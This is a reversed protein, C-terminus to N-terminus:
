LEGGGGGGFHARVTELAAKEGDVISKMCREAYDSPEKSGGGPYKKLEKDVYESVLKSKDEASHAYVGAKIELFTVLKEVEKETKSGGICFEPTYSRFGASILKEKLTEMNEAGPDGGSVGASILSCDYNNEPLVFGHYMFYVHNPQGYNEYVQEGAGFDWPAKTVANVGADDVDTKHVTSGPPGDKCNILDLLPVLNRVGNWWISRSDLITTAWMFNDKNWADGFALKVAPDTSISEFTKESRERNEGVKKLIPSGLLHDLKEESFFFPNNETYDKITPLLTLYPWWFSKDKQVFREHMLFFLLTHFDDKQEKGRALLDNVADSVTYANASSMVADLPVSIYVDGQKIATTSRTGVRMGDGAVYAELSNVPFKLQEIFANFNAVKSELPEEDDSAAAAAASAEAAAANDKVFDALVSKAALRYRVALEGRDTLGGKDLLSQDQEITTISTSAAAATKASAVLLAGVAASNGSYRICSPGRTERDLVNAECAKLKAARGEDGLAAVAYYAYQRTNPPLSAAPSICATPCSLHANRLTADQDVINLGKLVALVAPSTVVPNPVNACNFPNVFPVFGHAEIYISNPNDGYDEFVQENAPVTRDSKVTMDGDASLIHYDLFSRGGNAVRNMANPSYNAMDALPTMHKTGQMVMARSGVVAVYHDFSEKTLCSGDIKDVKADVKYIVAMANIAEEMKGYSEENHQRITQGKIKVERDQFMDLEEDTFTQLNNVRTPLVDLYPEMKSEKGLSCEVMLQMAIAQDDNAYEELARRVGDNSSYYGLVKEKTLIM